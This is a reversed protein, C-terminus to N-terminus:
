KLGMGRGPGFCTSLGLAGFFVPFVWFVPIKPVEDVLMEVLGWVGALALVIFIAFVLSQTMFFRQAEDINKVFRWIAMLMFLVFFGPLLSIAIQASLPASISKLAFTVGILAVAYGLSGGLISWMYRKTESKVSM